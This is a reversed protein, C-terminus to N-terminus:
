PLSVAESCDSCMRDLTIYELIIVCISFKCEAHILRKAVQGIRLQTCLLWNILANVMYIFTFSLVITNNNSELWLLLM